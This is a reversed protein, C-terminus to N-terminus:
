SSPYLHRVNDPWASSEGEVDAKGAAGDRRILGTAECANCFDVVTGMDVGSFGAIGSVTAPGDLMQLALNRHETTYPIAGFDPESVLFLVDNPDSHQFLRGESGFLAACYILQFLPRRQDISLMVSAIVDGIERKFFELSSARFMGPVMMPDGLSTYANEAPFITVAPFDPHTIETTRGRSVIDSILGLFRTEEVFRRAQRFQKDVEAEEFGAVETPELIPPEASQQQTKRDRGSRVREELGRLVTILETYTVPRVFRQTIPYVSDPAGFESLDPLEVDDEGAVLLVDAKEPDEVYTWSSIELGSAISVTTEVFVSEWESLGIHSIRISNMANSVKFPPRQQKPVLRKSLFIFEPAM